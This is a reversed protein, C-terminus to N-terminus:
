YNIKQHLAYLEKKTKHIKHVYYPKLDKVDQYTFHHSNELQELHAQLLNLKSQLRKISKHEIFTTQM